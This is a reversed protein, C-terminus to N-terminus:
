WKNYHVNEEKWKDKPTPNEAPYGIAIMGLPYITSPLELAERVSAVRESMPYVGCWVAGLGMGHAALLINETAASTDEIWYDFAEGELAKEQDGCVVITLPARGVPSASANGLKAVLTDRVATDDIVVFAWPQKNVASPAAMGAKLLMEVKEKEVPKAEYQRISTRTMINEIVFQESSASGCSTQNCCGTTMLAVSAMLITKISKM